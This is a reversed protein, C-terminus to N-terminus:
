RGASAGGGAVPNARMDEPDGVRFEQRRPSPMCWIDLPATRGRLRVRPLRMFRPLADSGAVGILWDSGMVEAVTDSFLVEGARARECLRAAINVTDGILTAADREIQEGLNLLAVRGTHIGIGIGSAMSLSAHWRLAIPAFQDLMDRAAALAASTGGHHPLGVGFGAMLGDGAMHYIRGGHSACARLLVRFFEQLLPVLQQAPLRESLTTYGRLDVFLVTASVTECGGGVSVPPHPPSRRSLAPRRSPM